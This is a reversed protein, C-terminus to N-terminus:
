LLGLSLSAPMPLLRPLATPVHLRPASTAGAHSSRQMAPYILGFKAFTKQCVKPPRGLDWHYQAKVILRAAMAERAMTSACM